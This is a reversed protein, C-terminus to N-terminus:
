LKFIREANGGRVAAPDIESWVPDFAPDGPPRGAINGLVMVGVAGRAVSRELEGLALSPHQWPLSALWRIRDPWVRQGGPVREMTYRGGHQSLLSIWRESLMHTHVDIVAM